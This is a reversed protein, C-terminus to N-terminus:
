NLSQRWHGQHMHVTFCLLWSWTLTSFRSAREQLCLMLVAPICSPSSSSPLTVRWISEWLVWLVCRMHLSLHGYASHAEASAPQQHWVGQMWLKCTISNIQCWSFVKINRHFLAEVLSPIVWCWVNWSTICDTRSSPILQERYSIVCTSPLPNVCQHDCPPMCAPSLSIVVAKHFM